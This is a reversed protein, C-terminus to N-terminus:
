PMARHPLARRGLGLLRAPSGHCKPWDDLPPDSPEEELPGRSHHPFAPAAELHQRRRRRRQWWRWRRRRRPARAQPATPGRMSGGGGPAALMAAASRVPSGPAQLTSPGTRSGVYGERGRALSTAQGTAQPTRSGVAAVAAPPGAQPITGERRGKYNIQGHDLGGEQQIISRDTHKYKEEGWTVTSEDM